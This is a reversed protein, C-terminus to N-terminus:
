LKSTAVAKSVARIWKEPQAGRLAMYKQVVAHPFVYFRDETVAQLLAAAVAAASVIGDQIALSSPNKGPPSQNHLMATDVGQPCICHVRVGRAAHMAYVHQAFAVAGAKTVAYPASGPVALLGAASATVM